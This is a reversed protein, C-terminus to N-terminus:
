SFMYFNNMLSLLNNLFLIITRWFYAWNALFRKSVAPFQLIMHSGCMSILINLACHYISSLDKWSIKISIFMFGPICRTFIHMKESFITVTLSVLIIFLRISCILIRIKLTMKWHQFDTSDKMNKEHLIYSQSVM